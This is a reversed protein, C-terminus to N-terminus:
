RTVKYPHLTGMTRAFCSKLLLYDALPTVGYWELKDASYLALTAHFVRIELKITQMEGTSLTWIQTIYISPDTKYYKAKHYFM